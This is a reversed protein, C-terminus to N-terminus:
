FHTLAATANPSNGRAEAAVFSARDGPERNEVVGVLSREVGEETLPTLNESWLKNGACMDHDGGIRQQRMGHTLRHNIGSVLLSSLDDPQRLRQAAPIAGLVSFSLERVYGHHRTRRPFRPNEQALGTLPCDRLVKASPLRPPQAPKILAWEAIDNAAPWRPWLFTCERWM